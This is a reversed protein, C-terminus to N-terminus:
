RTCPNYFCRAMIPNEGGGHVVHMLCNICQIVSFWKFYFHSSMQQIVDVKLIQRNSYINKNFSFFYVIRYLLIIWNSTVSLSQVLLLLVKINIIQQLIFPSKGQYLAFIWKSSNFLSLRSLLCIVFNCLRWYIEIGAQELGSHQHSLLSRTSSIQWDSGLGEQSGPESLLVKNDPLWNQHFKLM